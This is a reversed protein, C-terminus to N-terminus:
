SFGFVRKRANTTEFDVFHIITFGDRWVSKMEAGSEEQGGMSRLNILNM